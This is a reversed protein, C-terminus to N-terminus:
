MFLKCSLAALFISIFLWIGLVSVVAFVSMSIGNAIALPSTQNQFLYALLYSTWTVILTGSFFWAPLLVFGRNLQMEKGRFTTETIRELDPLCYTCLVYGTTMCILLYLVGPM